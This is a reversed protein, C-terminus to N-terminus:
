CNAVRLERRNCVHNPTKSNSDPIQALIRAFWKDFFEDMTPIGPLVNDLEAGHEIFLKVIELLCIHTSSNGYVRSIPIVLEFFWQGFSILEKWPTTSLGEENLFVENPSFGQSLLYRPVSWGVEVTREWHFGWGFIATLIPSRVSHYLLPLPFYRTSPPQAGVTSLLSAVTNELGLEIAMLLLLHPSPRAYGPTLVTSLSPHLTSSIGGDKVTIRISAYDVLKVLVPVVCELPERDIERLYPLVGLLLSGARAGNKYYMYALQLDLSAIACVASFVPDSIRLQPLSWANPKDLFEFVARHIFQIQSHEPFSESKHTLKSPGPVYKMKAWPCDESLPCWCVEVDRLNRHPFRGLSRVTQLLGGCRSRLRATMTSCIKHAEQTPFSELPLASTCDMANRDFSALEITMVKSQITHHPLTSHRYHTYVIKLTKAMWEHYRRDVSNLMHVFLDELEAPLDDVRQCLEEVTDYAAFGDLVSRCALVVWLFVGSAKLILTNTILAPPQKDSTALVEMYTHSGVTDRIYKTIDNRTLREMHLQPASSFDDHCIPIPRSSLIIKIASNSCLGKILKIADHYNGEFEDLGDIFLCFRRNPQFNMLFESAIRLEGVSPPEPEKHANTRIEKWLRPLALPIYSSEAELLQYLIARTLGELSKQEQTGLGWFFFSCMTLPLDEAWANLPLRTAPNDHLYKMLTSKGSGAKGCIWYLGTGSQLWDSLNNWEAERGEMECAPKLVWQLTKVHAPEVSDKRDDMCRFWLSKLARDQDRAEQLIINRGLRDDSAERLLAKAHENYISAMDHRIQAAFASVADESPYGPVLVDLKSSFHSLEKVLANFKDKDMIMWKLKSPTSTTVKQQQMRVRMAKFDDMFQKVLSEGIASSQPILPYSSSEDAPKMGYRQQLSSTESLLHMISCLVRSVADRIALNDLRRDYDEHLLRVRDAWQLLVTKEIHLKADLLDYDDGYSRYTSFYGFLEVCSKFVGALGIVGLALGVPEM